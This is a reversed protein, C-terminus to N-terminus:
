MNKFVVFRNKELTQLFRSIREYLPEVASGFERKQQEAITQISQRGDCRRWFASGIEDLRIKYHPKKMRPLLHRALFANQIKPKLLVVRGAEDSEWALNRVPILQLLNVECPPAAKKKM